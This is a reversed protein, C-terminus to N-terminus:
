TWTSGKASKGFGETNEPFSASLYSTVVLSGSIRKERPKRQCDEKSSKKKLNGKPFKDLMLIFVFVKSNWTWLFWTLGNNSQHSKLFDSFRSSITSSIVTRKDTSRVAHPLQKDRVTEGNTHCVDSILLLVPKTSPEVLGKTYLRRRSGPSTLDKLMLNVGMPFWLTEERRMTLYYWM